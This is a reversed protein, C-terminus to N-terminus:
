QALTPAMVVAPALDVMRVSIQRLRVEQAERAEWVESVPPLEEVAM